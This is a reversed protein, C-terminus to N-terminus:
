KKEYCNTQDELRKRPDGEDKTKTGHTVEEFMQDKSRRSKNLAFSFQMKILIKPYFLTLKNAIHISWNGISSISM